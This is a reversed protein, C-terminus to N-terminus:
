LFWQLHTKQVFKFVQARRLQAAQKGFVERALFEAQVPFGAGDLAVRGQVGVHHQRAQHGFPAMAEVGSGGLGGAAAVEDDFAVVEVAQAQQFAGMGVLHAHNVDVRGVVGAVLVPDVVVAVDAGVVAPAVALPQLEQVAAQLQGLIQERVVAHNQDADVVFVPRPQFQQHILHKRPPPQPAQHPARLVRAVIQPLAERMHMLVHQDIGVGAEAEVAPGSVLGLEAIGVLVRAPVPRRLGQGLRMGVRLALVGVVGDLVRFGAIPIGTIRVTNPGVCGLLLYATPQTVVLVCNSRGQGCQAAVGDLCQDFFSEDIERWALRLLHQPELRAVRQQGRQARSLTRHQRFLLGGQQTRIQRIQIEPDALRNRKAARRALLVPRGTRFALAERRQATPDSSQVFFDDRQHFLALILGHHQAAGAAAHRRFLHFLNQTGLRKRVGLRVRQNM